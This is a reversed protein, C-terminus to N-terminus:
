LRSPQDRNLHPVDSIPLLKKRFETVSANELRFCASPFPQAAIRCIHSRSEM